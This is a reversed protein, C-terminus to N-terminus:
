FSPKDYSLNGDSSIKFLVRVAMSNNDSLIFEYEGEGLTGYLKTWNFKRWEILYKENENIDPLDDM